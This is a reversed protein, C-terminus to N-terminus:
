QCASEDIYGMVKNALHGCVSFGEKIVHWLSGNGLTVASPAKAPPSRAQATRVPFFKRHASPACGCSHPFAHSGFPDPARRAQPRDSPCAGAPIELCPPRPSSNRCAPHSSFRRMRPNDRRHPIRGQRGHSRSPFAIAPLVPCSPPVCTLCEAPVRCRTCKATDAFHAPMTASQSKEPKETTDKPKVKSFGRKWM